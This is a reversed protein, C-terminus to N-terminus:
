KYEAAHEAAIWLGPEIYLARGDRALEEMWEAPSDTEEALQDGEAMLLAHLLKANQPARRRGSTQDIQGPEPRLRTAGGLATEDGGICGGARKSAMGHAGAATAAAAALLKERAEGAADAVGSTVPDYEYMLKAEAQRRLPMAMPSPLDHRVETVAIAGTEVGRLVYELGPMDWYDDLCERRTEWILPHRDEGALSDLLEMGRLRQIWLPKRGQAKAGAMLARAMNYRFAMGFLPTAPLMAALVNRASARDIAQIVGSPLQRGSHPFLLIGDDDNFASIDFGAMRAAADRALLALPANVRKGFVSHIMLQHEGADDRFYESVITRDSPLVGTSSIQRRIHALAGCAAAANMGFGRLMQYPPSDPEQPHRAEQLIAREPPPVAQEPEAFLRGGAACLEGLERMLAGFALGTQMHRGLADGRWFPPQAGSPSAKAVTVADKGIGTIQWAFTGLLFKDGARAEFVFEEDVEGIRAGDEAYVPFLGKDPITGGASLALLRSYADGEVVGSLRDYLIKPRAPVDRAHEFDGALMELVTEVQGRTVNRFPYARGLLEMVGGAGDISYPMSGAAMSVLHQALVDLCGEPIHLPEIGGANAVHATLGCYLSEQATRPFMRMVSVRGPNHGARGVRQMASSISMPCGIQMVADIEGVDIGLEMSSTACLMRLRGERIAQEAERRRVKALSGHHTAAFGEGAIENVFYALKEAMMRGDTFAIACRAEACQGYVARALEPWVSGRQPAGDDPIPSDVEIKIRKDMKPAVIAAGGPALYEAATELQSITASLGVRQLPSRGLMDLRAASLMLHAGRKSGMLAHIEDIVLARATKLMSRGSESTLLLYLSEPTTVLIHPPSKLMARREAQTTDGTRVAVAIQPESAAAIGSLPRRLNERIDGALSKLPSVYVLHLERALRGERAMASLRDIYVLFAALTKGTGTPSSVLAHRDSLIAKWAETQVPTPEGLERSFWQATEDCFIGGAFTRGLGSGMLARDM